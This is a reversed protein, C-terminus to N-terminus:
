VRIQPKLASLTAILNDILVIEIQNASYGMMRQNLIANQLGSLAAFLAMVAHDINDKSIDGLLWHAIKELAQKGLESQIQTIKEHFSATLLNRALLRQNEYGRAIAQLLGSVRQELTREQWCAMNLFLDLHSGQDFNSQAMLSPLLDQKTAFHKYFAGISLHARECIEQVTISEFERIQLLELTSDLVRQQTLRSRTQKPKRMLNASEM